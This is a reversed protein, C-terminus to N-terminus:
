YLPYFMVAGLAVLIVASFTPIRLWRSERALFLYALSFGLILEILVLHSASTRHAHSHVWEVLDGVEAALLTLAILLLPLLLRATWDRTARFFTNGSVM